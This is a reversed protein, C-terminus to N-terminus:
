RGHQQAGVKLQMSKGDVRRFLEDRWEVGDFRINEALPLGQFYRRGEYVLGFFKPSGDRFLGSLQPAGGTLPDSSTSQGSRILGSASEWQRALIRTQPFALHFLM